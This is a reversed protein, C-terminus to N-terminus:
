GRAWDRGQQESKRHVNSQLVTGRQQLVTGRQIHFSGAHIVTYPLGLLRAPVIQKIEVCNLHNKRAQALIRKTGRSVASKGHGLAVVKLQGAIFFLHLGADDLKRSLDFYDIGVLTRWTSSYGLSEIGARDPLVLGESIMMAVPTIGTKNTEPPVTRLATAEELGPRNGQWVRGTQVRQPTATSPVM